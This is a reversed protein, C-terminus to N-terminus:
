KNSRDGPIIRVLLPTDIFKTRLIGVSHGVFEDKLKSRLIETEKTDDVFELTWNGIKFYIMRNIRYNGMYPGVIEAWYELRTLNSPPNNM